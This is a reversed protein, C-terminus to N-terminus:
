APEAEPFTWTGDLIEPRPRYLRVAYNWGETIPLCNPRDDGCGGFHVTISGDRDPTATLNNVSYANRDNAEFYGDANYVSISWFGDVPVHGVTVKYAGSPFGPDVNVYFAEEEPLGGWGAAAGLLHKIPDVADKRGFAGAFSSIGRALTLVAERTADFSASDYDPMVFPRASQAELDIQDQVAHVAELDAPDNPDVLTRAAVLVHDTDFREVTLEHDGPTRLVENIYHDNNVVMVSLYRDGVDPISLTAGESIDVIASSYLTDRNQRIVPQDEISGPDRHHVFSNVPGQMALAAFMRDTEARVFNEVTVHTAM